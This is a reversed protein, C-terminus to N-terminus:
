KLHSSLQKRVHEKSVFKKGDNTIYGEVKQLNISKSLLKFTADVSYGLKAALDVILVVDLGRLADLFVFEVEPTKLAADVVFDLGGEHLKAIFSDLDNFFELKVDAVVKAIDGQFKGVLREFEETKVGSLVSTILLLKTTATYRELANSATEVSGAKFGATSARAFCEVAQPLDNKKVLDEGKAILKSCLNRRSPKLRRYYVAPVLAGVVIVVAVSGLTLLNESWFTSSAVPPTPTSASTVTFVISVKHTSFHTTYWVYYNSSDQTYGQNSVSQGDIIVAPTTGYPIASRPITVNGFGTTGSQGTITFSLTTTSASQNTTIAVNTMQSGIVNGSIALEVITGRDTTAPVTTVSPTQTPAPATTPTPAAPPKPTPTPPTPTSTLAFTATITHVAIVNTFSVTQGSSSTVTVAGADTTISAIYYGSNPTITFITSGGYNVSTTGPAIVGNAGQTVTVAYTNIAYTATITHDAQVNSFTYSSVAGRSAGDVVVDVIHYGTNPTVTFTQSSGSDVTLTGPSIVGNVSQTVTIPYTNITYTATAVDSDIMSSKYAIAKITASSSVSISGSYLTGVTSTPVTVGDTTYRITAGSTACSLAVNQASPYTGGAPSFSPMAVPQITSGVFANVVVGTAAVIDKYGDGNIDQIASLGESGFDQQWIITYTAPKFSILYSKNNTRVVVENIGNGDVDNVVAVGTVNSAFIEGLTYVTSGDKGNLLALNGGLVALVDKVGDLNADIIPFGNNGQENWVTTTWAVSEANGIIASLKLYRASSTQRSYLFHTSNYYSLSLTDGFNNSGFDLMYSILANTNSAVMASYHNVFSVTYILLYRTSNLVLADRVVCTTFAQSLYGEWQLSGTTISFCDIYSNSGRIYYFLIENGTFTMLHSPTNSIQFDAIETLLQTYLKVGGSYIVAIRIAPSEIYLAELAVFGLAQSRIISGTKGNLLYLVSDNPTSTVAFVDEHGDGDVDPIARITLVRTGSLGGQSWLEGPILASAFPKEINFNYFSVLLLSLILM